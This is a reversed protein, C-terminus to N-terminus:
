PDAGRHADLGPTLGLAGSPHSRAGRRLREAAGSITGAEAVAVFAALQNMTFAPAGEARAM